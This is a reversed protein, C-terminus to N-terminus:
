KEIIYFDDVIDYNEAGIQSLIENFREVTDPYNRRLLKYLEREDEAFASPFFEEFAKIKEKTCLFVIEERQPLELNELPIVILKYGQLKMVNTPFILKGKLLRSEELPNPLLRYVRGMVDVSFLYPYCPKESSLELELEEGTKFEKKNLLLVLGFNAPKVSEEPIEFEAKVRICVQDKGVLEPKGYIPAGVLKVTGFVRTHIIDRVLKTNVILTKSNILVGIYREAANLKANKLAEEKAKKIDSHCGEGEASVIKAFCISLHFLLLLTLTVFAKM